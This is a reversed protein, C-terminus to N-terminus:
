QSAFRYNVGVKTEWFTLKSSVGTGDSLTFGHNGFGLYDFEGRASWNDTLAFEVGYGATWGLRTDGASISSLLAGTPSYCSQASVSGNVAGLNCTVSFEEHSWAAGLKAYYLARGWAYGVRGTATALWDLQDHCTVNFLANMPLITPNPATLSGCAKSGRTNTWALDGDVGLVWQGMQYNYGVNGGGLVGALQPDTTAGGFPVTTKTGPAPDFTVDAKGFSTVGGFGGIYFGTWNVPRAALIPAKVPAKTIMATRPAEPTFQYRIGGSGTWGRINAGDEYDFRVYGLWGTNAVQGAVGVSYVGYTGIDGGNMTATLRSPVVGQFICNPCSSYNASWGGEFERWISVSAFPQYMMNGSVVNTGVRLGLRGVFSDIDNIQVSGQFNSVQGPFANAGALQLPDVKTRSWVAGASPEVFWDSNPIVWHYGASGSVSIGHADLKQDYVNVSPSNLNTEYYNFRVLGEAFFGGYTAAAYTGVFPSQTTTDFSGGTPTAGESLSGRSEMYGATTGLHINWGGVNLRSIDTGVQFGVFNQKFTSTCNGSGSQTINAPAPAVYNFSTTGSNNIRSEGGIVRAWVGSGQSDAPPNPPSSVFATSHTLFATNAANITAAFATASAIGAGYLSKWDFNTSFSNSLLPDCNQALAGSSTSVAFILIAGSFLKRVMLRRAAQAASSHVPHVRLASVSRVNILM